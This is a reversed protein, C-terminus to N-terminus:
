KRELEDLREIVAAHRDAAETHGRIMLQALRDVREALMGLREDTRVQAETLKIFGNTMLEALRDVRDETRAQAQALRVVASELSDFRQQTESDVGLAYRSGFRDCRHIDVNEDIVRV